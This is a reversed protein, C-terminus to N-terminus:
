LEEEGEIKDSRRDSTRNKKETSDETSLDDHGLTIQLIIGCQGTFIGQM